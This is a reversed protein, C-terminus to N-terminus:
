ENTYDLIKIETNIKMKRNQKLYQIIYDVTTKDDILENLTTQLYQISFSQFTKSENYKVKKNQVVFVKDKLHENIIIDKIHNEVKLKEEKFQIINLSLSKIDKDLKILTNLHEKLANMYLQTM